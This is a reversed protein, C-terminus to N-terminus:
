AEEAALLGAARLWERGKATAQKQYTVHGLKMLRDWTYGHPKRWTGTLGAAECLANIQPGTLSHGHNGPAWRDAPDDDMVLAAPTRDPFDLPETDDTGELVWRLAETILREPLGDSSELRLIRAEIEDRSRM